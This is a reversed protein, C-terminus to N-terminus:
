RTEADSDEVICRPKLIHILRYALNVVENNEAERPEYKAFKVRDCLSSFDSNKEHFEGPLTEDSFYVELEYSTMEDGPISFIRGYFHRIIHSIEVYFKKYEGEKLISSSVLDKLRINVEDLPPLQPVEQIELIDGSKIRKWFFFILLSVVLLAGLTVALLPFEDMTIQPKSDSLAMDGEELISTIEIDIARTELTLNAGDSNSGKIEFAPITYSGLKYWSLVSTMTIKQLGTGQVREPKSWKSQHVTAEGLKKDLSLLDFSWGEEFHLDVSYMILDGINARNRDVKATLVPEGATIASTLLLTLYILKL